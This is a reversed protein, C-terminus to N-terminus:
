FIKYESVVEFGAASIEEASVAGSRVMRVANQAVVRVLTSPQGGAPWPRCDVVMGSQRVVEPDLDRPTCVPPQGSRNASSSVLPAGAGRCLEAAVLHPTMRVASRGYEDRALPSVDPDVEVVISLSGPWFKRALEEEEPRMRLFRECMEWDSVILPLPKGTPRGKVAFIREVAPHITAMCGLAYFTETPYIVLGGRTFEVVAAQNLTDV